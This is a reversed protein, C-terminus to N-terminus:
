AFLDLLMGGQLTNSQGLLLIGVQQSIQNRVRDVLETAFDVARIRADSAMTAELQVDNSRQNAELFRVDSGLNGRATAVSQIAEDIVDVADQANGQTSIDIGTLALGAQTADPLDVAYDDDGDTSLQVTLSEKSGNLLTTDGVQTANAIRDISQYIQSLQTDLIARESGDITGDAARLSLERAQLLLDSTQALGGEALNITDVARSENRQLEELAGIEARLNESIQLGAPNDAGRNIRLGTALHEMNKNLLMGAQLINRQLSSAQTNINIGIAM